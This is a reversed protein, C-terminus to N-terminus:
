TITMTIVYKTFKGTMHFINVSNRQLIVLWTNKTKNVELCFVAQCQTAACKTFDLELSKLVWVFFFCYWKQVASFVALLM